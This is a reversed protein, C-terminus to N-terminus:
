EDDDFSLRDSINKLNNKREEDLRKAEDDKRQEAIMWETYQKNAEKLVLKLTKAHYKEVEEMETGDLYLTDGTIYAIGPRHMLTQSPPHLWIRLFLDSWKEPPTRSLRFPVRYLASGRTGDNRPKTVEELIVGQIKIDEWESTPRKSSAVEDLSSKTDTLRGIPPAQPKVGHLTSLLAAFNSEFSPDDSLNLYRKGSLMIPISTSTDGDRLIPIYKRQNQQVFLESSIIHGEYGVGGQRSESKIRYNPTCVVLVYDSTKISQEMFEPLQDGLAVHWQDLIADIGKERLRSALNLVWNKHAESDWSYSIFVKPPNSAM